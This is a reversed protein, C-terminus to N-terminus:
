ALKLFNNKSVSHGKKIQELRAIVDPANKSNPKLNLFKKYYNIARSTKGM